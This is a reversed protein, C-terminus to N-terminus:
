KNYSLLVIEKGSKITSKHTDIQNVPTISKKEFNNIIISETPHIHKIEKTEDCKLIDGKGVLCPHNSSNNKRSCKKIVSGCFPLVDPKLIPVSLKLHQIESSDSSNRLLSHSGNIPPQYTYQLHSPTKDLLSNEREIVINTKRKDKSDPHVVNTTERENRNIDKVELSSGIIYCEKDTVCHKTNGM